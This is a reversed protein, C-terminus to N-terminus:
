LKNLAKQLVEFSLWACKLRTPSLEINLNKLLNERTIRKVRTLKKRLIMDTLLSASAISIACGNGCFAADTIQDNKIELDMRIKDGCFVNAEEDSVTPKRLKGFNNPHQYLDIIQELYINM